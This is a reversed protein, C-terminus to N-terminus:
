EGAAAAEASNIPLTGDDQDSELLQEFDIVVHEGTSERSNPVLAAEPVNGAADPVSEVQSAQGQQQMPQVSLPATSPRASTSPIPGAARATYISKDLNLDRARAAATIRAHSTKQARLLDADADNKMSTVSRSIHVERFVALFNTLSILEQSMDALEAALSTLSSKSESIFEIDQQFSEVLANQAQLKSCVSSLLTSAQGIAVHNKNQNDSISQLCSRHHAGLSHWADAENSSQLTALNLSASITADAVANSALNSVSESMDQLMKKWGTLM